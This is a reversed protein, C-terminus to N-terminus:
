TPLQIQGPARGTQELRLKTILIDRSCPEEMYLKRAIRLLDGVQPGPSLNFEDIIDKGTIPLVSIMETLLAHEILKRGEVEFDYSGQQVDLERTWRDYYRNRFRPVDINERGMDAAVISILRDFEHPPHYRQRRFDWQQLIDERCEDQEICRICDRLATLFQYADQLLPQLCLRWQKQTSPVPVQCQEQFWRECAYQIARNQEKTPDLNHQLYMRMQHVVRIHSENQDIGYAVLQERLFEVNVRDTEFYLVYFWSVARHFGFEYPTLHRVSLTVKGLVEFGGPNFRLGVMNIENVLDLISLMLAQTTSGSM